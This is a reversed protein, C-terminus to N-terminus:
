KNEAICMLTGETEILKGAAPDFNRANFNMIGSQRQLRFEASIEQGSRNLGMSRCHILDQDRDQGLNCSCIEIRQTMCGAALEQDRKVYGADTHLTVKYQKHTYTASSADFINESKINGSCIYAIAGSHASAMMPMLATLGAMMVLRCLAQLM